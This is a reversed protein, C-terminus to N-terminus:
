CVTLSITRVINWNYLTNARITVEAAYNAHASALNACANISVTPNESLQDVVEDRLLKKLKWQLPNRTETSKVAAFCHEILPQQTSISPKSENKSCTEQHLKVSSMGGQNVWKGKSFNYWVFTKTCYGCSLYPAYKKEETLYIAKANVNKNHSAPVDKYIASNDRVKGNICDRSIEQFEM